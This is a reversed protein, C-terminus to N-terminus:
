APFHIKQFFNEAEEIRERCVEMVQPQIGLPEAFYINIEPHDRFVKGIANPIDRQSHEGPLLIGPLIIIHKIGELHCASLAEAVTPKAFEM